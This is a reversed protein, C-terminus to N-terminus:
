FFKWAEFLQTRAYEDRFHEAYPIREWGSDIKYREMLKALWETRAGQGGLERMAKVWHSVLKQRDPTWGGQIKFRRAAIVLVPLLAKNLVTAECWQSLCAWALVRGLHEDSYMPHGISDFADSLQVLPNDHPELEM